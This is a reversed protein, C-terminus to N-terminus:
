SKLWKLINQEADRWLGRLQNSTTTLGYRKRAEFLVSSFPTADKIRLAFEKQSTLAAHDIWLELLHAYETQIKAKLKYFAESCETFYVLLESEEGTLVFPLLHKPNFLNDGEGRMRHLALYTPSKIKFRRGWKDRIVVGEFTPDTKSEEALWEQIEEISNFQFQEVQNLLPSGHDPHLEHIPIEEVGRFTSLLYVKPEDYKRVIKNWPSVFECVYTCAPNLVNNIYAAFYEFGMAERIAEEWTKDCGNGIVGDAFTGRTNIRWQGKYNYLLVLSGDVKETCTFYSFDFEAMETQFEGWNFFRSFGKAVVNWTDLELVLGRCERVIPNTKPSDIQDYNLIVLPLDIHLLNSIGLEAELDGLTKGSRLYLQVNLLRDTM